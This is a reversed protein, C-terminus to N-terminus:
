HSSEKGSACSVNQSTGNEFSLRCLNFDIVENKVIVPLSHSATAAAPATPATANHDAAIAFTPLLCVTAILAFKLM